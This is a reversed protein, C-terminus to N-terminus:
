YVRIRRVHAFEQWKDPPESPRSDEDVESDSSEDSWTRRHFLPAEQLYGIREYSRVEAMDNSLGPSSELEKLLLGEARQNKASVLLFLFSGTHQEDLARAKRADCDWHATIWPWRLSNGAPRVPYASWGNNYWDLAVSIVPGNIEIFSGTQCNGFASATVDAPPCHVNVVSWDGLLPLYAPDPGNVSGSISAWSWSPAVYSRLAPRRFVSMWLLQTRIDQVWMGAAYQNDSIGEQEHRAEALGALAVLRDEWVTLNLRTYEAIVAHWPMETVARKLLGTTRRYRMSSASCECSILSRCEWGVEAPGFHLTRPALAREQFVWGRTSLKSMSEMMANRSLCFDALLKAVQKPTAGGRRSQVSTCFRSSEWARSDQVKHPWGHFPLQYGLTGRARVWIPPDGHGEGYPVRHARSRDRDEQQLFGESSNAAADASITVLADGYVKAM